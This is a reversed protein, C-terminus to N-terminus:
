LYGRATSNRSASGRVSVPFTWRKRRRSRARPADEHRSVARQRRRAPLAAPAVRVADLRLALEDEDRALDSPAGVLGERGALEHRLETLRELVRARHQRLGSGSRLVDHAHGPVDDVLGLVEVGEGLHPGGVALDHPLVKGRHGHDDDGSEDFVVRADLDLRGCDNGLLGLRVGRAGVRARVLRRAGGREVGLRDWLKCTVKEHRQDLAECYNTYECRRVEDGRGLRTKLFWDPDALSARAAAVVDADGGNCSRSRSSSRGSAARPWSRSAVGTRGFRAVFPPRWRFTGGSPGGTRGLPDDAHVRIRETGHLSLRAWGVKPQRADEFKGGKSVSVYHCGGRALEVSFFTADDLDSGGEIVEDGLLRVGVVFGDGVRARVTDLVELPLRVRNERTGGYGDNRQNRRSLFSAMTYAHAYHLEVGDFGAAEARSAADAFLGPLTEPLRRVHELHLDDVRERAGFRLSELEPETLVVDHAADDAALLWARVDADAADRWAADKTHAELRERHAATVDLFRQFYKEKPPRRRISLFDLIQIFLRTEGGSAERVTDVLRKLGPVFRDHGIRLLPGSPVDRIGTAEVVLAGPRGQAFRRYWDLVDDTVLGEETARWPVMAPVWTRTTLELPGVAIPQFLM